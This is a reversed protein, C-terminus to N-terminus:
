TESKIAKITEGEKNKWAILGNTSRGTVFNAATTASKFEVDEMVTGNKVYDKRLRDIINTSFKAPHRVEQSVISGKLVVLKGSTVDYIGEANVSSYRLKLFVKM